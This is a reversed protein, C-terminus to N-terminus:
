LLNRWGIETDQQWSVTSLFIERWLHRRHHRQCYIKLSHDLSNTTYTTMRQSWFEIGNGMDLDAETLESTHRNRLIPTYKTIHKCLNLESFNM